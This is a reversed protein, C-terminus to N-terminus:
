GGTLTDIMEDLEGRATTLFTLMVKAREEDGMNVPLAAIGRVVADPHGEALPAAILFLLRCEKVIDRIEAELQEREHVAADGIAGDDWGSSM